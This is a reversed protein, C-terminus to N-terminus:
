IMPGPDDTNPDDAKNSLRSFLKNSNFSTYRVKLKKSKLTRKKRLPLNDLTYELGLIEALNVPIKKGKPISYIKGEEINSGSKFLDYSKVKFGKGTALDRGFLMDSKEDKQLVSVNLEVLLKASASKRFIKRKVVRHKLRRPSM